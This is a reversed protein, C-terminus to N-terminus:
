LCFVVVCECFVGVVAGVGLGAFLFGFLLVRVWACRVCVCVFVCGGFVGVLCADCVCKPCVRFFDNVCVCWRCMLFCILVVLVCGVFLMMAFWCWCDVFGCFVCLAAGCVVFFCWCVEIV